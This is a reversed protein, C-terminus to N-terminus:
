NKSKEHIAQPMYYQFWNAGYGDNSLDDIGRVAKSPLEWGSM